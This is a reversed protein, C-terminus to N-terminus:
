IKSNEDDVIQNVSLKVLFYLIELVKKAEERDMKVGNKALIEIAIEPKIMEPNYHEIEM